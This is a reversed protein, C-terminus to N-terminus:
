TAFTIFARRYPLNNDVTWFSIVMMPSTPREETTTPHVRRSRITTMTTLPKLFALQNKWEPEVPPRNAELLRDTAAEDRITVSSGQADGNIRVSSYDLLLPGNSCVDGNQYIGGSGYTGEDSNYSDTSANNHLRASDLGVFGNCGASGSSIAEVTVDAFSKGLLTGFFLPLANGREVSRTLRIRVATVGDPITEGSTDGKSAVTGERDIETFVRNDSDWTGYSVDQQMDFTISSGRLLSASLIEFAALDADDHSSVLTQLAGISANDAANQLEHRSVVISGYDVAFAILVVFLPLLIAIFPVIVGRRSNFRQNTTQNTM